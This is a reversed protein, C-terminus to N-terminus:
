DGSFRGYMTVVKDDELTFGVETHAGAGNVEKFYYVYLLNRLGVDNVVDYDPEGYAEIVDRYASGVHVGRSTVFRPSDIYVNEIDDLSEAYAIQFIGYDAMRWRFSNTWMDLAKHESPEGYAAMAASAPYGLILRFGSKADTFALDGPCVLEPRASSDPTDAVEAAGPAPDAVLERDPVKGDVCGSLALGLMSVTIITSIKKM